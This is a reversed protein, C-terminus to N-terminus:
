GSRPLASLGTIDHAQHVRVWLEPLQNARHDDQDGNLKRRGQGAGMGVLGVAQLCMNVRMMMRHRMMDGLRVNVLSVNVLSVENICDGGLRVARDRVFNKQGCAPRRAGRREIRVSAHIAAAAGTHPAAAAGSQSRGRLTQRGYNM